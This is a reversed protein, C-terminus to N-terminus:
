RGHWQEKFLLFLQVFFSEITECVQMPWSLLDMPPTQGEGGACLAQLLSDRRVGLRNCAGPRTIPSLMHAMSLGCM